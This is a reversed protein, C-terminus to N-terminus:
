QDEEITKQSKKNQYNIAYFTVLSSSLVGILFSIIIELFFSKNTKSYQYELLSELKERDIELAKSIKDKEKELEAKDTSIQSLKKQQDNVYSNLTTLAEKIETLENIKTQIDTEEPELPFFVFLFSLLLGLVSALSAIYSLKSPLTWKKFQKKNPILAM